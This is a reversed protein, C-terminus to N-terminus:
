GQRNGTWKRDIRSDDVILDGHPGNLCAAVLARRRDPGYKDMERVKEDEGKAVALSRIKRFYVDVDDDFLDATPDQESEVSGFISDVQGDEAVMTSALQSETHIFFKKPAKMGPSESWKKLAAIRPSNEKGKGLAKRVTERVCGCRAALKPESHESRSFPENQAIVLLQAVVNKVSTRHRRTKVTLPEVPMAAGRAEAGKGALLDLDDQVDKLAFDLQDCLFEAFGLLMDLDLDVHLMMRVPLDGTGDIIAPREPLMRDHIVALIWYYGSLYQGAKPRRNDDDAMSNPFPSLPLSEVPPVEGKFDPDDRLKDVLVSRRETAEWYRMARTRCDEIQERFREPAGPKGILDDVQCARVRPAGDRPFVPFDASSTRERTM